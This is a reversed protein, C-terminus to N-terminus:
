QVDNTNRLVLQQRTNPATANTFDSLIATVSVTGTPVNAASFSAGTATYVTITDTGDTILKSGSYTGGGIFTVGQVKVLTSEWPDNTGTLNAKLQAITTLRPTVTGTGVKTAFGLPVNPTSGGVQLLGNFESLTQGSCEIKLSDGLQFSHNAAFRVVIGGTNDQIFINRGNLNSTTFDSIVTGNIFINPCITNGSAFAARIASITGQTGAPPPCSGVVFRGFDLKVDNLDRLLLQKDANYVSFVATISGSGRPTKQGAFNSYGSTRVILTNNYCDEMYRNVSALNVNDAYTKGTDTTQFQVNDIKVLRNQWKYTNGLETVSINYPTVTNGWTGTILHKTILSSSIAEVSPTSGSTSDIYGGLQVLGAYTGMSLGKLKIYVQRGVPFDTNYNSLDIRVAIGATGDDIIVTKYLNGSKDDAVVLGKVVWDNTITINKKAMMDSYYIVRKLSDLTMNVSLGPDVGNSPPQDYDEKRCAGFSLMLVALLALLTQKQTFRRFIM